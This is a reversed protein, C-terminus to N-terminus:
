LFCTQSFSCHTGQWRTHLHHQSVIDMTQIYLKAFTDPTFFLSATKRMRLGDPGPSTAICKGLLKRVSVPWWLTVQKNENSFLFKNGAPGCLVAMSEGLMSTKFVESKYKEMRDQVSKRSCGDNRTRIFELSEGLIPWGYSGPPLNLGSRNVKNRSKRSINRGTLFLITFVLLLVAAYYYTSLPLLNGHTFYNGFEM